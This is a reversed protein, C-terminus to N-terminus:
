TGSCRILEGLLDSVKISEVTGSPDSDNFYVMVPFRGDSTLLLKCGRDNRKPNIKTYDNMDSLLAQAVALLGEPIDDAKICDRCFAKAERVTKVALSPSLAPESYFYDLVAREESNTNELFIPTEQRVIFITDEEKIYGESIDNRIDEILDGYDISPFRETM